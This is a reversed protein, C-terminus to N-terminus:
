TVPFCCVRPDITFVTHPLVIQLPSTSLICNEGGELKPDHVNNSEGNYQNRVCVTAAGFGKSVSLQNEISHSEIAFIGRDMQHYFILNITVTNALFHQKQLGAM